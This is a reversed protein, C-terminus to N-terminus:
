ELKITLHTSPYSVLSSRLPINFILKSQINFKEKKVVRTDLFKLNETEAYYVIKNKIWEECNEM